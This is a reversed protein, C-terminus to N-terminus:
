PDCVNYIIIFGLTGVAINYFWFLISLYAALMPVDSRLQVSINLFYFLKINAFLSYKGLHCFIPPAVEFSAYKKM